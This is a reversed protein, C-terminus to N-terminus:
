KALVCKGADCRAKPSAPQACGIPPCSAPPTSKCAARFRMLSTNNAVELVCGNGFMCCAYKGTTAEDFVICEADTACTKDLPPLPLPTAVFSASASPPASPQPIPASTESATPPATGVDDTATPTAIPAPAPPCALLSLAALM